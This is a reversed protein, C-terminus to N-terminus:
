MQVKRPTIERKQEKREDTLVQDEVVADWSMEKKLLERRSMHLAARYPVIPARTRGPRFCEM